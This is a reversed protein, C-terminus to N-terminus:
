SIAKFVWGRNRREVQKMSNKEREGKITDEEWTNSSMDLVEVKSKTETGQNGGIVVLRGQVLALSHNSRPVM